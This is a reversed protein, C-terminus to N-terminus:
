ADFLIDTAPLITPKPTFAAEADERKLVEALAAPSADGGGKEVEKLIRETAAIAEELRSQKKAKKKKTKGGEKKSPKELIVAIKAARGEGGVRNVRGFRQAMGDLTSLDCLLHDADLDAGVEGASTSVLYLTRGDLQAPRNPNSKFAKFLESEALQDREFGRITGTLLGIRADAGAKSVAVGASKSKEVIKRALAERVAQATEPSRVYILVRCKEYDHEAAQEGIQAVVADRGSVEVPVISLQKIAELRDSVIKEERDKDELGFDRSGKGPRLRIVEDRDESAELRSTASLEMVNVPREEGAERQEREVKWLLRSFAPSLHAEDHLILVDQGILGAHHARYYRGDGYGSFLLKSGIMDITGVVIAPRAPDAKWEENDALEGRLASIGLSDDEDGSASLRRLRSCFTSLTEKHEVWRGDYPNRLRERMENVVDTAQDVVTRRNVIYVLRRPLPQVGSGLDQSALAILWIPIVSTKGLGTPLDCAAPITGSAIGRFLRAQWRMPKHGTLANFCVEFPPIANM